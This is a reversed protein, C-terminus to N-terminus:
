ILDRIWPIRAIKRYDLNSPQGTIFILEEPKRLYSFIKASKIMWNSPFTPQDPIWEGMLDQDGRYVDMYCEADKSFDDYMRSFKGPTFLMIAAQYRWVMGQQYKTIRNSFMVLDGEFDLVPQLNGVIYTDQDLYLTRGAPLDSRHLEMKSWWGPWQNKLPIKIAPLDNGEYNTLCYFDYPRDMYRDVNFRLREIDRITFSRGRICPTWWLCIINIKEKM